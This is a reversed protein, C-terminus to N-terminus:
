YYIYQEGVNSIVIRHIAIARRHYPVDSTRRRTYEPSYDSVRPLVSGQISLIQIIGTTSWLTCTILSARSSSNVPEDARRERQRTAAGARTGSPIDADVPIAGGDGSTAANLLLSLFYLMLFFAGGDTQLSTSTTRCTGDHLFSPTVLSRRRTM